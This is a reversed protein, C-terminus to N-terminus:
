VQVVLPEKAAELAVGDHGFQAVSNSMTKVAFDGVQSYKFNHHKERSPLQLDFLLSNSFFQCLLRSWRIASLGLERHAKGNPM